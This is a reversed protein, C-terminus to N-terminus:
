STVMIRVETNAGLMVGDVLKASRPVKVDADKYLLARHSGGGGLSSAFSSANVHTRRYKTKDNLNLEPVIPYIWRHIFM